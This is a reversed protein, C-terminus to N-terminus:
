TSARRASSTRRYAVAEAETYLGVDILVRGRDTLVADRRRTTAVTRGSPGTPWLGQLDAPDAVADLVM